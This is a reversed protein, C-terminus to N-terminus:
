AGAASPPFSSPVALTSITAQSRRLLPRCTGEALAPHGRPATLKLPRGFKMDDSAQLLILARAPDFEPWAALCSGATLREGTRVAVTSGKTTSGLHRRTQLHFSLELLSARCPGQLLRFIGLHRNCGAPDSQAGQRRSQRGAADARHAAQGPQPRSPRSGGTAALTCGCNRVLYTVVSAVPAM